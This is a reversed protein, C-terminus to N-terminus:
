GTRIRGPKVNAATSELSSISEREAVRSSAKFSYKLVYGDVFGHLVIEGLVVSQMTSTYFTYLSPGGLSGQPVSCVLEQKSSYAERVNVM